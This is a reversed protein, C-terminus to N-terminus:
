CTQGKAVEEAEGEGALGEFIEVFTDAEQAGGVEYKNNIVFHPVGSIFRMQAEKVERDVVEGMENSKLLGQVEEKGLGAKVGADLLVAHSTIDKEEEFYARFLEEVVRTQMEAGKVKGLQLLRHSDRTNGTRGGYKFAIGNEAGIKSLMNQMAKTREAGFKTEYVTQKDLSAGASPNLYFPKWTTAFTDTSRSPHKRRYAAIGSELRKKGVYCWPCVTDSTITIQFNTM